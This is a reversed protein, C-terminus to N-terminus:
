IKLTVRHTVVQCAQNQIHVHINKQHDMVPSIHKMVGHSMQHHRTITPQIVM